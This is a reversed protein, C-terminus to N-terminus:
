SFRIGDNGFDFNSSIPVLAILGGSEIELQVREYERLERVSLV